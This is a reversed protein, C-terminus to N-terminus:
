KKDGGCVHARHRSAARLTDPHTDGLRRRVARGGNRICRAGRAAQRPAEFVLATAYWASGTFRSFSDAELPPALERASRPMPAATDLDGLGLMAREALALSRTARCCNQSEYLALVKTLADRAAATDGRAALWEARTM